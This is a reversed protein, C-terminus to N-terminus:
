EHYRSLPVQLRDLLGPSWMESFFDEAPASPFSWYSHAIPQAAPRAGLRSDLATFEAGLASLRSDPLTRASAQSSSHFRSHLSPSPM